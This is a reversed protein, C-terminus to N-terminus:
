RRNKPANERSESTLLERERKLYEILEDNSKKHDEDQIEIYDDDEIEHYDREFEEDTIPEKSPSYKKKCKTWQYFIKWPQKLYIKIKEQWLKLWRKKCCM